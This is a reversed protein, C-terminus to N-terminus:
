CKPPKAASMRRLPWSAASMSWAEGALECALTRLKEISMM